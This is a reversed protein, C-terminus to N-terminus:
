QEDQDGAAPSTISRVWGPSPTAVIIRLYKCPVEFAGAQRAGLVRLALGWLIEILEARWLAAASDRMNRFGFM